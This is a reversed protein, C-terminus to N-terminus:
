NESHYGYREPPKRSRGSRRPGTNDESAPDTPDESAPDTPDEPPPGPLNDPETNEPPDTSEPEQESTTEDPSPSEQSDQTVSYEFDDNSQAGNETANESEVRSRLQDTHRRVSRGDRLLVTHLTSGQINTVKGPLWVEGPGYNRAYVAEGVVFNRQRAHSDQGRKQREQSLRVKRALDPRLSDLHTRIKRGFMLESPSVGTSSQPTVRYTFLFRAVKTDLTGEKLKRMGSKFTQVAREAIGNSAPHYPPTKLHKIGNKKLFIEFEESTFNTANDSVIVDPLGLTAFSKRLLSITTASTSSSTMHVELWKSHADIMLLFMKGQYPGCYDIHVRSWPKNPWAWPHLPLVPPTKRNIQCTGCTKVCEELEQDVGPWWMYGRALRKMRDIGPHGQHLMKKVQGRGKSPIVVRSGWVICGDEVTLDYRKRYYPHLEKERPQEDPWGRQIWYKVKSLHTDQETWNRIQTSTVPSTNLYEMLHVVEAPAPPDKHGKHLPLRSLADANANEEGKKYRITYSYAGLTIAWRQIRGAALVTTAKTESFIHVLPKHDTKLEFHRGYLYQHYKRVGFILALAEKDLQSYKREVTTLTRSAFAIPREDGTPMRHSLVAGVGYPSADCALILPLKQDYHVLVQPSRLLDKVAAFAERQRRGWTWKTTKQLLEYLPSLTTALDPLFKGYYNVLGLFSRLEGVNKPAPAKLIAEVKAKSTHLGDASITHGIYDVSPLFFECKARKLKMGAKQLRRLVEALHDLHEASTHGTVLIDDIYVCVGPIGQLLNDMIRQFISPASAIGFPLRNYRFLGKHTSITAFQRSDEDLEIQQYAHSLDLKTFRKGGSLSTFLDDIKPIPYKDLKAVRNVTVKYDGCIRVSGDPKTVPVIPAAWDSFQIPEIIGQEQLRELEKEVKQQMTFPVSRAKFFRPMADPDVHIKATTGKVKGLKEEFVESHTELLEQLTLATKVQFISNWDLKLTSLWNRGLLSPGSGRTIILPLTVTQGNHQVEVDATGVVQIAEGTYTSLRINAPRIVAGRQLLTQFSEEGMLSVSAGTDVEMRVAQKNLTVEVTLPKSSGCSVRYLMYENPSEDGTREEEVRHARADQESEHKSQAKRKRCATAIHGKKHCYHCEYSKFKCIAPSHKGGCRYCDNQTGRSAGGRMKTPKPTVKLVEAKEQHAPTIESSTEHLRKSDKEATESALAMDRATAYTLTSEQLYRRQVREDSTGCVLRDRLMDNLSSGYDCHEAIKRLAAIYEAVSEGPKQKRTNFEYRKITVSPKPNFHTKVKQVLDAFSLDSPKGPLSLTKILRYTSAGVCNLLIARQKVPDKIDNAIFYNELREAYDEWEERTGDFPSAVGHLAIPAAATVIAGSGSGSGSGSSSSSSTASPDAPPDDDSM